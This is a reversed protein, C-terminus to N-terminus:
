AFQAARIADFLGKKSGNDVGDTLLVLAKRGSQKRLLDDSALLIADYLETGGLTWAGVKPTGRKHPPLTPTQLRALAQDLAERSATFDQLLEVERDFHLIFARDMDPRLVQMLFRLSATREEALLKKQSISTDVLLGLALPQASERSFYRITQPRGDEELTFDDKNLNAVVHGQSDRVSAFLNVVRVDSRFDQAPLALPLLMWALLHKRFM